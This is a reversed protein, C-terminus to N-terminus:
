LEQSRCECRVADPYRVGARRASFWVDNGSSWRPTTGRRLTSSRNEAQFVASKVTLPAPCPPSLFFRVELHLGRVRKWRPGTRWSRNVRWPPYRFVRLGSSESGARKSRTGARRDPESDLMASVLRISCRPMVGGEPELRTQRRPPLRRPLM